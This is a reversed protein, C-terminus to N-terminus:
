TSDAQLSDEINLIGQAIRETNIELGGQALRERASDVRAQDVAPTNELRQGAESVRRGTQTLEAQDSAAGTDVADRQTTKETPGPQTSTKGGERAPTSEPVGNGPPGNVNITM